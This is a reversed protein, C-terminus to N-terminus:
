GFGAKGKWTMSNLTLRRALGEFVPVQNLQNLVWNWIESTRAEKGPIPWWRSKWTHLGTEQAHRNRSNKGKTRRM